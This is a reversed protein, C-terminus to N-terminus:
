ILSASFCVHREKYSWIEGSSNNFIFNISRVYGVDFAFFIFEVNQPGFDTLDEPSVKYCLLLLLNYLHIITTKM